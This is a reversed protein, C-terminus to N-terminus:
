SKSDNKNAKKANRAEVPKNKRSDKARVEEQEEELGPVHNEIDNISNEPNMPDALPREVPPLDKMPNKIMTEVQEVLGGSQRIKALDGESVVIEEGARLPRGELINGDKFAEVMKIKYFKEM